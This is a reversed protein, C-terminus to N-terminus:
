QEGAALIEAKRQQAEVKPMPDTIQEEGRYVAFLGRGKHRVSIEDSEGAGTDDANADTDPATLEDLLAQTMAHAAREDELAKEAAEARRVAADLEVALPNGSVPTASTAAANEDGLHLQAYPHAAILDHVDDHRGVGFRVMPGAAGIAKQEESNLLLNFPKVVHLTPM